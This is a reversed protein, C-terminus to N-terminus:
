EEKWCNLADAMAAENAEMDKLLAFQNRARVLNHEPYATHFYRDGDLYDTLFRIGVEYTMMWAGVPLSALEERSMVSGVQSLYGRCWARYMPLSFHVRTLDAEDELATNTGFRIADGFDCPIWIWCACGM